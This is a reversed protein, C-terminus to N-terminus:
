QKGNIDGSFIDVPKLNIEVELVEMFDPIARQAKKRDNYENNTGCKPCFKGIYSLILTKCWFFRTRVKMVPPEEVTVGVSATVAGRTRYIRAKKITDAKWKEPKTNWDGGRHLFKGTRKNRVVFDPM